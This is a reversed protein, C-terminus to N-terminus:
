ALAIPVSPDDLKFSEEDLPVIEVSSPYIHIAASLFDGGRTAIDAGTAAEIEVGDIFVRGHIQSTIEEDNKAPHDGAYGLTYITVKSM